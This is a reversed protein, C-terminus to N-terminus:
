ESLEIYAQTLADRFKFTTDGQKQAAAYLQRARGQLDVTNLSETADTVGTEGYQIAGPLSDLLARVKSGIADPAEMLIQTVLQAQGPHIRGVGAGDEVWNNVLGEVAEFKLAEQLQYNQDQMSQVQESLQVITNRAAIDQVAGQESFEMNQDYYQEGDDYEFAEGYENFFYGSEEDYFLQNGEEDYLESAKLTGAAAAAQLAAAKKAKSKAMWPKVGYQYGAGLAGIGTGAIIANRGINPHNMAYEDASQKWTIKPAGTNAPAQALYSKEKAAFEMNDYDEPENLMGTLEGEELYLGSDMDGASMEVTRNMSRGGKKNKLKLSKVQDRNASIDGEKTCANNGFRQFRRGTNEPEILNNAYQDLEWENLMTTKLGTESLLIPAMRKIFPRNTLTVAVLVNPTSGGTEPDEYKPSFEASVYRYVKDQILGLGKTTWEVFAWLGTPRAELKKVWGVAGKDEKHETDIAIDIGRVNSDHHEKLQNFTDQSVDVLGYMPHKWRGERLVQIWSFKLNRAGIKAPHIDAPSLPKVLEAFVHINGEEDLGVDHEGDVDRDIVNHEKARYGYNSRGM